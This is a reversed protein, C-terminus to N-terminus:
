EIRYAIDISISASIASIHATILTFCKEVLFNTQTKTCNQTPNIWEYIIM